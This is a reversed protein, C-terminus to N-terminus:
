LWLTDYTEYMTLEMPPTKLKPSRVGIEPIPFAKPPESLFFIIKPMRPLKDKGKRIRFTIAKAM